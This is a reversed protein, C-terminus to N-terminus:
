LHASFAPLHWSPSRPHGAAIAACDPPLPPCLEGDDSNNIFINEVIADRSSAIDIGDTNGIVNMPALIRLDRIRINQSYTPTFTWFPSNQITLPRDVAAGHVDLGDVFVFQLLMPRGAQLCSSNANPWEGVPPKYHCKTCREWWPEGQGDIVGSGTVTVNSANFSNIIAQYNLSGPVIEPVQVAFCNSDISWGYGIVPAVMPYDSVNTSALLTGDVVFRQNSTLNLPGTLFSKGEPLLVEDCQKLASRIAHTNDKKGDGVAAFSSSTVDCVSRPRQAEVGDSKIADHGPPM